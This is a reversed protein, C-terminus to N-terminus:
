KPRNNQSTSITHNKKGHSRIYKLYFNEYHMKILKTQKTYGAWARRLFKLKTSQDSM